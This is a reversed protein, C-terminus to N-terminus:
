IMLKQPTFFVQQRMLLGQAPHRVPMWFDSMPKLTLWLTMCLQDRKEEKTWEIPDPQLLENLWTLGPNHCVMFHFNLSRSSFYPSFWWYFKTVFWISYSLFEPAMKSFALLMTSPLIVQAPAKICDPLAMFSRTIVPPKEGRRRGPTCISDLQM